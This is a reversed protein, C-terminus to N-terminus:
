TYNNYSMAKLALTDSMWQMWGNNELNKCNVGFIQKTM